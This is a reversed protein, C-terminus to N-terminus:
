SNHEENTIFLVEFPLTENHKTKKGKVVIKAVGCRQALTCTSVYFFFFFLCLVKDGDTCNLPSWTRPSFSIGCSLPLSKTMVM